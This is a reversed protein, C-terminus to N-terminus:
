EDTKKAINKQYLVIDIVFSAIVMLIGLLLGIIGVTYLVDVDYRTASIEYGCLLLSSCVLVVLSLLFLKTNLKM